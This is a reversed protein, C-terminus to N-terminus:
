CWVFGHHLENCLRSRVDTLEMQCGAIPVTAWKIDIDNFPDVVRNLDDLASSVPVALLFVNEELDAGREGTAKSRSM